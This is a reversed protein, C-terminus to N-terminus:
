VIPNSITLGEINEFDKTNRTILEFNHYWATAAILADQTGMKNQQRLEVAKEAIVHNINLVTLRKFVSELFEKDQAKLKHFGLTEVYSIISAANKDDLVLEQLYNFEALASYIIINTDLLKM